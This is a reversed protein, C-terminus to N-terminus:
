NNRVNLYDGRLPKRISPQGVFGLTKTHFQFCVPCEYAKHWVGFTETLHKAQRKAIRRNRYPIKSLCTDVASNTM